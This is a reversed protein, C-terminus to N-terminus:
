DVSDGAEVQAEVVAAGAEGEKTEGAGEAAETEGERPAAFDEVDVVRDM